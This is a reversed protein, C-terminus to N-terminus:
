GFFARLVDLRLQALVAIVLYSAVTVPVIWPM